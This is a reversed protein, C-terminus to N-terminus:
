PARREQSTLEASVIFRKPAHGFFDFPYCTVLTLMPRGADDLVWVDSPSVISTRAIRYRLVADRTTLILPDGAHLDRVRRFITDRHGAIGVNGAPGPMPTSEIHGAAVALTDDDSGELVTASLRATPADLRAVWAGRSVRTAAHPLTTSANGADGPLEVPPPVAMHRVYEARLLVSACWGALVVGCVLLLRELGILISQRAPTM